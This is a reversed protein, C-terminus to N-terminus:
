CHPRIKRRVDDASLYIIGKRKFQSTPAGKTRECLSYFIINNQLLNFQIFMKFLYSVKTMISYKKTPIPTTQEQIFFHLGTLIIKNYPGHNYRSTAPSGYHTILQSTILSEAHVKAYFRSIIYTIVTFKKKILGLSSFQVSQVM